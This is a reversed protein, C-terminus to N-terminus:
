RYGVTGIFRFHATGEDWRTREGRYSFNYLLIVAGFPRDLAISGFRAVLVRDYSHGVLLEGLNASARAHFSAERFDEDYYAIGFARSFTSGLFDGDDSYREEVLADLAEESDISGLWLSASTRDDEM